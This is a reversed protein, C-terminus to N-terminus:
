QSLVEPTLIFVVDSQGDSYRTSQFLKGLIPLDGLGPIKAITKKEVRNLLGGMIISQGPKTIVDTSLKSEKLAPVVFGGSNIGDQFDLDSIEPEVKCHVAGNGM